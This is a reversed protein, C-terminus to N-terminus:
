KMTLRFPIFIATNEIGFSFSQFFFFAPPIPIDTNEIGFLGRKLFFIVKGIKSKLFKDWTRVVSAERSITNKKRGGNSIIEDVDFDSDETSSDIASM